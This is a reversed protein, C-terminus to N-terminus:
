LIAYNEALLSTWFQFKEMFDIIKIAFEGFLNLNVTLPSFLWNV